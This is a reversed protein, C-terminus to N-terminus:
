CLFRPPPPRVRAQALNTTPSLASLLRCVHIGHADVADSQSDSGDSEAWSLSVPSYSRPYNAERYKTADLMYVVGRM